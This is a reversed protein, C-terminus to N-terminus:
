IQCQSMGYSGGFAIWPRNRLHKFSTVFAALDALAQETTLYKLDPTKWTDAPQSYGYYRHELVFMMAGLKKAWEYMLGQQAWRDTIPGECGVYLFVPADEDNQDFFQNSSFYRQQYRALNTPDFHDVLNSFWQEPLNVLQLGDTPFSLLEKSPDHHNLFALSIIPFLIGILLVLTFAKRM